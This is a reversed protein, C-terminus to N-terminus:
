AEEESSAEPADKASTRASRRLGALAASARLGVKPAPLVNTAEVELCVPGDFGSRALEALIARWPIAGEGLVEPTWTPGRKQGDSAFVLAVNGALAAHGDSASEGARSADAPDWAAALAPHNAEALLTALAEASPALSGSANRVALRCGARGAADAARRLADTAAARAADPDAGEGATFAGVVILGCGMRKCFRLTDPLAAIENLWGVRDSAEGEFLEPVVAALPLDHEELRRALKAQNVEPVLDRGKGVRRLVVGELGWLLTYHLARDLDPTVTDTLWTLLM